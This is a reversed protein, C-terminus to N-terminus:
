TRRQRLIEYLTVAVANTVNLSEMKGQMPLSLTQDCLKRAQAGLGSGEAGLVLATRGGFNMDWYCPGTEAELGFIGFGSARLEDAPGRLGAVVVTPVHEVAGASASSVSGLQHSTAGKAPMFILSVGAAEASRYINGLNQPDQIRDLLLVTHPEDPRDQLIGRLSGNRLLNATAVVGQHNRSGCLRQLRDRPMEQIPIKAARCRGLLRKLVPNRPEIESQISQIRGGARLCEAVPNIGYLLRNGAAVDIKPM